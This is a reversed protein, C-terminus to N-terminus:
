QEGKLQKMLGLQKQVINIAGMATECIMMLEEIKGKSCKLIALQARRLEILHKLFIMNSDKHIKDYDEIYYYNGAGYKDAIFVDDSSLIGKIEKKTTKVLLSENVMKVLGDIHHRSFASNVEKDKCCMVALLVEKISYEKM